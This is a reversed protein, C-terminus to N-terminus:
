EHDGGELEAAIKRRAHMLRTKVTGAPVDLALATEAVSLGELHHLWLAGQQEAPLRAMAARVKAFDASVEPGPAPEPEPEGALASELTRSSQAARILRACRRATIRFAFAPFAEPAKLRGLGKLIEIWADQVADEVWDAQGLLRWAFASLRPSWRRALRACAARDGAKAAAALYTDLARDKRSRM